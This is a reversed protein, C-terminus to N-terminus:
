PRCGNRIVNVNNGLSYARSAVYMAGLPGNALVHCICPQELHRVPDSAAKCVSPLTVTDAENQLLQEKQAHAWM